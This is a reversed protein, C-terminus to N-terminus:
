ETPRRKKQELEKLFNELQKQKEEPWPKPEERSGTYAQVMERIKRVREKDDM